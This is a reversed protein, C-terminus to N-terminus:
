PTPEQTGRGHWPRTQNLFLNIGSAVFRHGNPDIIQGNSVSFRNSAAM